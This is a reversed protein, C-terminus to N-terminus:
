KAQGAHQTGEMLWNAGASAADIQDMYTSLPFFKMEDIFAQNWEGPVMYVNYNNVQVSFPDARYIKNGTPREIIVTYGLLNRATAQASDKGGSGPEQELMIVTDHGDMRATLKTQAERIDTDWQGRSAHLIWLRNKSDLGLKIGATFCGGDQTAAKDWSRILRSNWQTPDDLRPSETITIRDTKFMGGGPPVPHQGFQGAFGYQGLKKENENLTKKTLRRIDMLHNGHGDDKYFPALAAPKLHESLEAPLCIHLVNDTREIMNATCDNQHLRQMILITLSIEKDVKRTALTEDMWKNAALMEANSIAGQPDIPDDVILLHAHMGVVSGGTGVCFRFGGKENVYYSKADQDKTLKISPWCRRYKDSKVVMRSKRSLDLALSAGHSGCITRCTPFRTWAWAPLLVSVITSKTSGPPINIVIDYTRPVGLFVQTAATQLENCLYEIHWNHIYAEPIVIDWFEQVFEFFSEECISAVLEDEDVEVDLNLIADLEYPDLGNIDPQTLQQTM